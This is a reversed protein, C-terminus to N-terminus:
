LGLGFRGSGLRDRGKSYRMHRNVVDYLVRAAELEDKPLEKDRILEM